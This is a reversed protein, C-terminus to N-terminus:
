AYLVYLAAESLTSLMGPLCLLAAQVVAVQSDRYRLSIWSGSIV